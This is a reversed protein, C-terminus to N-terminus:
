LSLSRHEAFQGLGQSPSLSLPSVGKELARPETPSLLLCGEQAGTNDKELELVSDARGHTLLQVEPQATVLAAETHKRCHHWPFGHAAHSSAVCSAVPSPSAKAAPAEVAKSPVLRNGETHCTATQPGCPVAKPM